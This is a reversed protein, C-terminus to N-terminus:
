DIPWLDGSPGAARGAPLRVRSPRGATVAPSPESTSTM